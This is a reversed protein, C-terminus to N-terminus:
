KAENKDDIIAWGEAIPDLGMFPLCYGWMRLLDAIHENRAFKAWWQGKYIMYERTQGERFRPDLKYVEIAHEDTIRSLDTLILRTDEIKDHWEDPSDYSSAAYICDHFASVGTLIQRNDWNVNTCKAGLYAAFFRTRIEQNTM